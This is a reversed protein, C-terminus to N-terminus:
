AAAPPARPSAPDHDPGIAPFADAVRPTGDLDSGTLWSIDHSTEPAPLAPAAGGCGMTCCNPLKAQGDPVNSVDQDAGTLCLPNGFADLMPTAPAAAVSWATLFAQLFLVFAAAAAVVSRRGHRGKTM